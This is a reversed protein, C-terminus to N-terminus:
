WLSELVILSYFVLPFNLFTILKCKLLQRKITDNMPVCTHNAKDWMEKVGCKLGIRVPFIRDNWEIEGGSCSNCYM